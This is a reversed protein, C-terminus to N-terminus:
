PTAPFSQYVERPTAFHLVCHSQAPLSQLEGVLNWRKRLRSALHIVPSCIYSHWFPVPALLPASCSAAETVYSLLHLLFCDRQLVPLWPWLGCLTVQLFPVSEPVAETCRPSPSKPNSPKLILGCSWWRTKHSSLQPFAFSM